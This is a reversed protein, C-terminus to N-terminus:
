KPPAILKNNCAGTHGNDCAAKYYAKAKELDKEVTGRFGKEYYTGLTYLSDTNNQAASKELLEIGLPYNLEVKDNSYPVKGTLYVKALNNQYGAHGLEAAKQMLAFAKATDKEVGVSTRGVQYIPIMEVIADLDGADAKAKTEEINSITLAWCNGTFTMGVVLLFVFLLKKTMVLGKRTLYDFLVHCIIKGNLQKNKFYM